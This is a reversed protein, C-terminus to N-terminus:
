QRRNSSIEVVLKKNFLKLKTSLNQKLKQFNEPSELLQQPTSKLDVFWNTPIQGLRSRCASLHM